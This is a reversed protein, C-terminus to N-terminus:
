PYQVLAILVCLGSISFYADFKMGDDFLYEIDDDDMEDDDDVEYAADEFFQLVNPNTRKRGKGTKDNQDDDHKRKGGTPGKGKVVEKSNSDEQQPSEFKLLEAETPLVGSFSLSEVRVKKYIYGDKLMM